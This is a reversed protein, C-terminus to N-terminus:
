EITEGANIGGLGLGLPTVLDDIPILDRNRIYIVTITVNRAPMTGKVVKKDTHYGNITPSTVNYDDGAHLTETHTEAATTGNQYQYLITLTYDKPTYRVDVETDENLVGKVRKIDVTYGEKPPSVVDYATGPKEVRKLTSELKDEAYLFPIAVAAMVSIMSRLSGRGQRPASEADPLVHAKRAHSNGDGTKETKM